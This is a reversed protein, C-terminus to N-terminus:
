INQINGNLVLRLKLKDLKKKLWHQDDIPNYSFIHQKYYKTFGRMRLDIQDFDDETMETMEEGWTGTLGTISKLKEVDDLGSAILESGNPRYIINMDTKNIKFLDTVKWRAIIDKFLQFQSNRITKAVKRYYLFRHGEENMARLLIKGAAVWESKGSGASGYFHLYRGTFNYTPIYCPNFIKIDFEIEM